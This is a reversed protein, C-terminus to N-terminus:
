SVLPGFSESAYTTMGPTVGTLITPRYYLGDRKGGALLTAGKRLADQVQADIKEVQDANILPAIPSNFARVDGMGLAAAKKVFRQIFEDAIGEQVYIRKLGMCIQGSHFFSAFTAGTVAKQLDADNLIIMADKGGLEVSVKKLLGGAKAAIGKGVATSGTFSIAKVKPHSVMLDGVQAVHKRSCTLVNFVGPPFGAKEAAKALVWGGAVPSEESPKLVVTNGVALIGSTTRSSLNLPVNWPTIVSVVGLPERIVMSKKGQESPIDYGKVEETLKAATRFFHACSKIEFKAKGIWSGIEDILIEEIEAAMEEIADAFKLLYTARDQAGMAAWAPFAQQ